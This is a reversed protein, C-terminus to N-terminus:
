REAPAPLPSRAPSSQRRGSFDNAKEKREKKRKEKKKTNEKIKM